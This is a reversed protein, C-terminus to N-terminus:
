SLPAPGAAAQNGAPAPRPLTAFWAQAQPHIKARESLRKQDYYTAYAEAFWEVPTSFQYNSV